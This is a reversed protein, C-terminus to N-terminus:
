TTGNFLLRARELALAPDDGFQRSLLEIVEEAAFVRNRGYGTRERVIRNAALQKVARNAAPPSINLAKELQQVSFIPHSLLFTLARSSASNERFVARERWSKPLDLIATRTLEAERASAIIAECIFEVIVAYSLKKQAEQLVKNYQAKEAEIFGSLYLPIRGAAAIQLTMLMRGVRGNGDTFPHVAEFHSHGIAMRVPLPMGLGADGLEVLDPDALWNMVDKLCRTVYEPPAPNYLSDEKRRLGGILVIAGPKGPERFAGPRGQYRPDNRMVERHLRQVLETSFLGPGKDFARTFETALAHAYGLVSARESKGERRDYLEGPTLVHDITSWTGEIRSSQVAERRVFLYSIIRMLDDSCEHRPLESLIQTARALVRVRLSRPVERPPAPPVVFWLNEYGPNPIKKVGCPLGARYEKRLIPALAERKM